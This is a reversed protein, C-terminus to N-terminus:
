LFKVGLLSIIVFTHVLIITYIEKTEIIVYYRTATKRQVVNNLGPGGVQCHNM